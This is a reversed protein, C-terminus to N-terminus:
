STLLYSLPEPSTFYNDSYDVGTFEGIGGVIVYLHSTTAVLHTVATNWEALIRGLEKDVPEGAISSNDIRRGTCDVYSLYAQIFAMADIAVSDFKNDEARLRQLVSQGWVSLSRSHDCEPAYDIGGFDAKKNNLEHLVHQPTNSQSASSKSLIQGVANALQPRYLEAAVKAGRKAKQVRSWWRLYPVLVVILLTLLLGIPAWQLWDSTTRTSAVWGLVATGIAVVPIAIGTVFGSPTPLENQPRSM